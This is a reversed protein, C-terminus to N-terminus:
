LARGINHTIFAIVLNARLCNAYEVDQTKQPPTNVPVSYGIIGNM